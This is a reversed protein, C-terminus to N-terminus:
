EKSAMSFQTWAEQLNGGLMKQIDAISWGQAELVQVVSLLSTAGSSKQFEPNLIVHDIGANERLKALQRAVLQVTESNVSITSCPFRVALMAGAATLAKLEAADFRSAAPSAADAIVLLSDKSRLKQIHEAKVGQVLLPFGSLLAAATPTLNGDPGLLNEPLNGKNGHIILARLGLTRLIDKREPHQLLASADATLVLASLANSSYTRPFNYTTVLPVPRGSADKLAQAEVIQDLLASAGDDLAAFFVSAGNRQMEPVIRSKAAQRLQELPFPTLEFVPTSRVAYLGLRDKGNIEAPANAMAIVAELAFEGVTSLAQMSVMYPRDWPTHNFPQPAVITPFLIPIGRPPASYDTYYGPTAQALIEPRVRTSIYDYIEPFVTAGLLGFSGDGVGTNDLWLNVVVKSLDVPANPGYHNYGFYDQEEAAWAAFMVSRKLQGRLPALTRALEMMLATGSADDEAGPYIEGTPDIGGHDYHAGILVYENKLVPDSGPLVGVVNATKRQPDMTVGAELHVKVGPIAFSVPRLETDIQKKLVDMRKGTSELLMASVYPEVRAVILNQQWKKQDFGWIRMDTLSKGKAPNPVLLLARAGHGAAQGAKAAMFGVKLDFRRGAAQPLGELAIAVKGRVDVGAYEDFDPESLGYGVFVVEAEARGGGSINEFLFDRGYTLEKPQGGLLLTMKCPGIYDFMPFTYHYLYTGNEGAPDLGSTRFQDAIFRAALEGGRTGSRRGEMEPSALKEVLSFAHRVDLKPIAQARLMIPAFFLVLFTSLLHKLSM